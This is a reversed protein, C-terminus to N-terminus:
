KSQSDIYVMIMDEFTKLHEELPISPDSWTLEGRMAVKELFWIVNNIIVALRSGQRPERSIDGLSLNTLPFSRLQNKTWETVSTGPPNDLYLSDFLGIYRYADRLPEFNHIMVQVLKKLADPSVVLEEPNILSAIRSLMREHIQVAIEDLNSFYRYLTIKTIGAGAAIDIMRTNKLGIQLFLKDAADLISARQWDVQHEGIQRGSALRSTTKVM